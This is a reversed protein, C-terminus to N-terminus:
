NDFSARVEALAPHLTVIEHGNRLGVHLEEPIHHFQRLYFYFQANGVRLYDYLYVYQRVLIDNENKTIKGASFDAYRVLKGLLTARRSLLSYFNIEFPTMKAWWKEGLRKPENLIPVINTKNFTRVDTFIKGLVEKETM